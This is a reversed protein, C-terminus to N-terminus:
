IIFDYKDYKKLKELLCINKCYTQKENKQKIVVLSYKPSKDAPRCWDNFQILLNVESFGSVQVEECQHETFEKYKSKIAFLLNEEM